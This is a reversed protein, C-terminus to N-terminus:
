GTIPIKSEFKQIEAMNPDFLVESCGQLNTVFTFDSHDGHLTNLGIGFIRKTKVHSALLSMELLLNEVQIVFHGIELAKFRGFIDVIQELLEHGRAQGRLCIDVNFLQAWFDLVDSGIEDLEFQALDLDLGLWSRTRPSRNTTRRFFDESIVGRFNM